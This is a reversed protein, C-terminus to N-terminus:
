QTYHLIAGEVSNKVATPWGRKTLFAATSEYRDQNEVVLLIKIEQEEPPTNIDIRSLDIAM